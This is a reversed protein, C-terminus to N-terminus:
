RCNWATFRGDDKAPFTGVISISMVRKGGAVITQMGRKARDGNIAVALGLIRRCRWAARGYRVADGLQSAMETSLGSGNTNSWDIRSFVVIRDPYPKFLDDLVGQLALHAMTHAGFDIALVTMRKGSNPVQKYTVEQSGTLHADEAILLSALVVGM